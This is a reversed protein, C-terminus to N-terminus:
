NMWRSIRRKCFLLGSGWPGIAFADACLQSEPDLKVGGEKRILQASQFTEFLFTQKEAELFRSLSSVPKGDKSFTMRVSVSPTELQTSPPPFGSGSTWLTM